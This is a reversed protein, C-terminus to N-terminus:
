PGAMGPGAAEGVVARLAEHILGNSAVCDLHTAPGGGSSSTTGGAEEVLLFGAAVDWPELKFEWHGDFRGCAVWALDLAASGLRRVGRARELVAAVVRAYAAANDRRDYGFGTSVLADGLDSTSSVTMPRGDLRAGGGGTATFEEGRFVDRVVAVQTGSPDELAVSVAVQPVGHLFNVTGDLPDIVWNRGSRSPRDGGEETVVGDDPRHERLLDLIAEEARRDAETVPNVAGKFDAKGVRDAQVRIVEAAARAALRGLELDDM